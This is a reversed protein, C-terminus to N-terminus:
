DLLIEGSEDSRAAEEVIELAHGRRAEVAQLALKAAGRLALAVRRSVALRLRAAPRAARARRLLEFALATAERRRGGGPLSESVMEHLAPRARRRTIVAVGDGGLRGLESGSVQEALATELRARLAARAQPGSPDLFDVVILGSLDRLRLQRSLLDAASENTEDASAAAGRDVDIAVLARTPEIWLRGGGPLPVEVALLAELAESLEAELATAAAPTSALRLARSIAPREALAAQLRRLTAEDDVAIEAPPEALGALLLPLEETRELLAPPQRQPPVAVQPAAALKVGKDAAPARVLRVAISAGETIGQGSGSLPLFGPRELGIEVFAAGLGRDVALVRGLCLDGLQGPRDDRTVRFDRLSGDEDLAAWRLEGPLGSVLWRGTM